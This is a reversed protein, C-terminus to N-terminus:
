HYGQQTRNHDYYASASTMRWCLLVRVILFDPWDSILAVVSKLV